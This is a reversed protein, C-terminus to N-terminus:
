HKAEGQFMFSVFTVIQSRTCDLANLIKETQHLWRKDPLPDVEGEFVLPNLKQFQELAKHLDGGKTVLQALWDLMADPAGRDGWTQEVM